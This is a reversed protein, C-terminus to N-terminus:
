NNRESRNTWLSLLAGSKGYVPDSDPKKVKRVAKVAKVRDRTDTCEDYSGYSPYTGVAM